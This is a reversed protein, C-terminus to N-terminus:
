VRLVIRRLFDSPKQLRADGWPMIKSQPYSFYLLRRSPNVAVFARRAEEQLERSQNLKRYMEPTRAAITKRSMTLLAAVM